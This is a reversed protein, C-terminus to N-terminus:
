GQWDKRQWLLYVYLSEVVLLSGTDLENEWYKLPLKRTNYRYKWKLRGYCNFAWTAIDRLVGGFIFMQEMFRSRIKEKDVFIHLAHGVRRDKRTGYVHFAEVWGCVAMYIGATYSSTSSMITKM